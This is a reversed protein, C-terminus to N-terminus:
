PVNWDNDLESVDELTVPVELLKPLAEKLKQAIEEETLWSEADLEFLVQFKRMETETTPCDIVGEVWGPGYCTRCELRTFDANHHMAEWLDGNFSALVELEPKSDLLHLPFTRGCTCCAAITVVMASRKATIM